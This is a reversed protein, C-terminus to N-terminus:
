NSFKVRLLRLANATMAGTDALIAVWRPTAGFLTM